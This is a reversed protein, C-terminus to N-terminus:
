AENVPILPLAVLFRGAEERVSPKPQGLIDYKALINTLGVGNSLVGQKKRQLNNSIHLNALADTQIKITLPRSAMVVNHKVANEVLLQLTLSPLKYNGYQPDIETTLSFGNGYRTRLLHAYSQIFNLEANLDTLDQENARLVYRYVSSLEEAFREAREPSESILAILANLSNFLFHPNVQQKLVDMQQMMHLQKLDFERRNSERLQYYTYIAEHCGASVVNTVLGIMLVWPLTEPKYPYNLYDFLRFVLPITILMFGSYGLMSFLLRNGFQDPHEYRYRMYKMWTTLVLFVVAGWLNVILTANVFLTKDNYYANGFIVYNAIFLAPSNLLYILFDYRDFTTWKKM